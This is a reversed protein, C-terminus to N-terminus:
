SELSRIRESVDEWPTRDLVFGLKEMEEALTSVAEAAQASRVRQQGSGPAPEPGLWAKLTRSADVCRALSRTIEPGHDTTFLTSLQYALTTVQVGADGAASPPGACTELWRSAGGLIEVLGAALEPALARGTSLYALGLAAAKSAAM